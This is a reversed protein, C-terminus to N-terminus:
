GGNDNAGLRKHTAAIIRVDTQITEVGGVREFSREQLVRLIKVQMNLLCIESKMLFYLVGMLLNLVVLAHQFLELSHAKKMDLCNVKWFNM